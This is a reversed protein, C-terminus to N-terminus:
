CPFFKVLESKTRLATLIKEAERYRLKIEFFAFEMLLKTNGIRRRGYLIEKKWEDELLSIEEGRDIFKSIM